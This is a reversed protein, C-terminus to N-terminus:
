FLQGKKIQNLIKNKYFDSNLDSNNKMAEILESVIKERKTNFTKLRPSYM